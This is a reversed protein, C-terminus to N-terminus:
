QHIVLKYHKGKFKVTHPFGEQVIVVWSPMLTLFMGLVIGILLGAIFILITM